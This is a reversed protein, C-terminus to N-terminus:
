LAKGFQGCYDVSIQWRFWQQAQSIALIAQCNNSPHFPLPFPVFTEYYTVAISGKMIPRLNWNFHKSFGGQFTSHMTAPQCCPQLLCLLKTIRNPLQVENQAYKLACIYEHTYIYTYTHVHTHTCTHVGAGKGTRGSLIHTNGSGLDHKVYLEWWLCRTASKFWEGAALCM